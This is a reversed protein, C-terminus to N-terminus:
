RKANGFVWTNNRYKSYISLLEDDKEDEEEVLIVEVEKGKFVETTSKYSITSNQRQITFVEYQDKTLDVIISENDDSKSTKRNTKKISKPTSNYNGFRTDNNNNERFDIKYNIPKPPEAIKINMEEAIANNPKHTTSKIPSQNIIKNNETQIQKLADFSNGRRHRNLPLSPDISKSRNHNKPLQPPNQNTTFNFDQIDINYMSKGRKHRPPSVTTPHKVFNCQLDPLTKSIQPTTYLSNKTNTTFEYESDEDEISHLKLQQELHFLANKSPIRINSQQHSSNSSYESVSSVTNRDSFVADNYTSPAKSSPSKISFQDMIKKNSLDPIEIQGSPSYFSYRSKISKSDTEDDSSLKTKLQKNNTINQFNNPFNFAIGLGNNKDFLQEESTAPTENNETPSPTTKSEISKTIHLPTTDKEFEEDVESADTDSWDDQQEESEKSSSEKIQEMTRQTPERSLTIDISKQLSNWSNISSTSNESFNSADSPVRSSAKSNTPSEQLTSLTTPINSKQTKNNNANNLNNYIPVPPTKRHLRQFSAFDGPSGFSSVSTTQSEDSFCRPRLESKNRPLDKSLLQAQTVSKATNQQQSLQPQSQNRKHSINLPKVVSDTSGNRSDIPSPPPKRRPSKPEQSKNLTTFDEFTPPLAPLKKSPKHNIDKQSISKSKLLISSSRSGFNSMEEIMSLEDAEKNQYALKSYKTNNTTVSPPSPSIKMSTSLFQNLNTSLNQETLSNTSRDFSSESIEDDESSSSIDVKEYGQPTYILTTQKPKSRIPSNGSRKPSTSRSSITSAASSNTMSETSNSNLSSLKPPLKLTLPIPIIYKNQNINTNPNGHAVIHLKSSLPNKYINKLQTPTLNPSNFISRIDDNDQSNISGNISHRNKSNKVPSLSRARRKHEQNLSIPSRQQQQQPQRSSIPTLQNNQQLTTNFAKIPTTPLSTM